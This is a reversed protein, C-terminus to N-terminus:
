PPCDIYVGTWAQLPMHRSGLFRSLRLIRKTCQNAKNKSKEQMVAIFFLLRTKLISPPLKPNLTQKCPQNAGFPQGATRNGPFYWASHHRRLPAASRRIKLSHANQHIRFITGTTKTSMWIYGRYPMWCIATHSTRGMQRSTNHLQQLISWSLFKVFYNSIIAWWNHAIVIQRYIPMGYPIICNYHFISTVHDASTKSTLLAQTLNSYRVTMLMVFQKIFTTKAVLCTHLHRYYRTLLQRPLVEPTM